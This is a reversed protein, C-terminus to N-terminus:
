GNGWRRLMREWTKLDFPISALDGRDNAGCIIATGVIYDKREFTNIQFNFDKGINKGDEDCILVIRDSGNALTVIEIYGGVIQQLKKLSNVVWVERGLPEGPDKIIVKIKM